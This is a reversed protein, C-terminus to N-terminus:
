VFTNLKKLDRTNFNEKPILQPFKTVAQNLYVEKCHCFLFPSM